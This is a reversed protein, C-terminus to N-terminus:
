TPFPPVDVGPPYIVPNINTGTRLVYGRLDVVDHEICVRAIPVDRYVLAAVAPEDCGFVACEGLEKPSRRIM